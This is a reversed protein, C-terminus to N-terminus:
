RSIAQWEWAVSWVGYQGEQTPAVTITFGVGPVITHATVLLPELTHEDVSHDVTALPRIWARVIADAAILAQGTVNFTGEGAGPSAGLDVVATGTFVDAM